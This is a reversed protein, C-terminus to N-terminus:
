LIGGYFAKLDQRLGEETYRSLVRESARSGLQSLEWPTKAAAAMLERVLGTTDTVKSSYASDFFENGGGGAYGVVFCGTAMAEAPPLGFGDRDSLSLFIACSRLTEGMERESRGAIAELQWGGRELGGNARLIHLIQHLEERRRSPIYGIRRGAEHSRLGFAQPDIVNRAVAIDLEPFAMRLLEANDDSVTLMGALNKVGRYPAGAETTSLAVRDFTHHAGQNFIVKRIQEPVMHLGVGYCEPIVLLDDRHFDISAASVIPARHAFWTCSFGDKEHLVAAPIGMDNLLEVHRYIVRTGGSPANEVPCLYYIRQRGPSPSVEFPPIKRWSVDRRHQYSEVYNRALGRLDM